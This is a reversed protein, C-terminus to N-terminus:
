ESPRHPLAAKEFVERSYTSFDMPQTYWKDMETVPGGDKVGAAEAASKWQDYAARAREQDDARLRGDQVLQDLAKQNQDAWTSEVDAPLYDVQGKKLRADKVAGVFTNAIAHMQGDYYRPIADFLIQRYPLPLEEVTSGYLVSSGSLDASGHDKWFYYYPAATNLRTVGVATGTNLSCDLVGRQLAEYTDSFPISMPVAGVAEVVERQRKTGIRVLKGRLDEASEVPSTCSLFYGAPSVDPGLTHLGQDALETRLRDDNWTLDQLMGFTGMEAVMSTGDAVSTVAGIAEQFDMVEPQTSPVDVALDLRGDNLAQPLEAYPAGSSLWVTEFTIKGGSRRTVEELYQKVAQSTAGQPSSQSQYRLKVPPLDKIAAQVAADEAGYAFGATDAPAAVRTAPGCSTLALAGALVAAAIGRRLTTHM